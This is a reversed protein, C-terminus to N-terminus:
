KKEAEEKAAPLKKAQPQPKAHADKKAPPPQPPKLVGRQMAVRYAKPLMSSLYKVRRDSVEKHQEAPVDKSAVWEGYRENVLKTVNGKAEIYIKQFDPTVLAMCLADALERLPALQHIARDLRQLPNEVSPEDTGAAAPEPEEEAPEQAEGAPLQKKEAAAALTEALEEEQAGQMGFYGEVLKGALGWIPSEPQAGQNLEAQTHLLQVTMGTMQSMFGGMQGILAAAKAGAEDSGAMAKTMMADRVPDPRTMMQILMEQSKAQQTSLETRYARDREEKRDEREREEKKEERRRIEEREERKEAREREEARRSEERRRDEAQMEMIRAFPDPGTPGQPRSIMQQLLPVLEGLNSAERGRPTTPAVTGPLSALPTADRSPFVVDRPGQYEESDAVAWDFRPESTRGINFVVTLAGGLTKSVAAESSVLIIFHGKANGSVQQLWPEPVAIQDFRVHQFIAFRSLMGAPHPKFDVRVRFDDGGLSADNVYEQLLKYTEADTAQISM